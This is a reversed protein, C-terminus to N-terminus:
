CKYPNGGFLGKLGVKLESDETMYVKDPDQWEGPYYAEDSRNYGCRCLVEAQRTVPDWGCGHACRCGYKDFEDKYKTIQKIFFDYIPEYYEGGFPTYKHFAVVISNM